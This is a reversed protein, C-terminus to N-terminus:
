NKEKQADTTGKPLSNLREQKLANLYNTRRKGIAANLAQRSAEDFELEFADGVVKGDVDLVEKKRVNLQGYNQHIALKLDAASCIPALRGMLLVGGKQM